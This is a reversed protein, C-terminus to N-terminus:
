NSIYSNRGGDSEISSTPCQMIALNPSANITYGSANKIPYRDQTWIEYTPQADLYPLLTVVWTGIKAHEDLTTSGGNPDSPDIGEQFYGFDQIWGPYQKKAMEEQIAA